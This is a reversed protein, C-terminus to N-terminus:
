NAYVKVEMSCYDSYDLQIAIKIPVDKKFTLGKIDGEDVVLNGQGIISANTVPAPYSGSEASLEIHIIGNNGDETPVFM